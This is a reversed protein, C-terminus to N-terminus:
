AEGAGDLGPIQSAAIHERLKQARGKRRMLDALAASLGSRLINAGLAKVAIEYDECSKKTNQKENKDAEPTRDYANWLTGVQGYARSARQQDKNLRTGNSM